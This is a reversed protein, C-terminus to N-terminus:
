QERHTIMVDRNHRLLLWTISIVYYKETSWRENTLYKNLNREFTIEYSLAFLIPDDWIAITNPGVIHQGLNTELRENASVIM